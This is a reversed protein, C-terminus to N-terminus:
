AFWILWLIFAMAAAMVVIVAFENRASPRLRPPDV